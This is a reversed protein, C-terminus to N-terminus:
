SEERPAAARRHHAGGASRRRTRMWGGWRTPPAGGRILGRGCSRGAACPTGRSSAASTGSRFHHSSGLCDIRFTSNEGQMIWMAGYRQIAPGRARRIKVKLQLVCGHLLLQHQVLKLHFGELHIGRSEPRSSGHPRVVAGRSQFRVAAAKRVQCAAASRYRFRVAVRHTHRMAIRTAVCFRARTTVAGFAPGIATRARRARLQPTPGTRRHLILPRM